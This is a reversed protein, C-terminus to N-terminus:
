AKVAVRLRASRAAPNSAVEEESPKEARRSLLRLVPTRGCGCVPLRPPCVCGRALDRFAQKVIRDELSHYALVALRGGPELLDAAERVFADLGELEANVHIRLAQFVRTAPHLMGRRKHFPVMQEVLAALERGTSVPAEEARRRAIARAIPWAYPEEGYERFVRAMEEEDATALFELAPAGSTRDMRMDLPGEDRFSFGRGARLQYTSMGLDALIGRPPTPLAASWDAIRKFNAHVPRLRDGFPALNRRAIALADADRDVGVVCAAPSAELIGRAHGGMGLTCDVFTGGETARLAQIVEALM